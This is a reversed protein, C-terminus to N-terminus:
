LPPKTPPPFWVVVRTGPKFSPVKTHTDYCWRRLHHGLYRASKDGEFPRGIAKCIDKTSKGKARMTWITLGVNWPLKRDPFSLKRNLAKLGMRTWRSRLANKTLGVEEALDAVRKTPSQVFENYLARLKVVGVCRLAYPYVGHRNMVKYLTQWQVGYRTSLEEKSAGAVLEDRVITAQEKTWRTV